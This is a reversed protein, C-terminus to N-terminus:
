EYGWSHAIAAFESFGDHGPRVSLRSIPTGLHKPGGPNCGNCDARLWAGPEGAFFFTDGIPLEPIGCRIRTGELKNIDYERVHIM